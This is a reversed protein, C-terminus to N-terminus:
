DQPPERRLRLWAPRLRDRLGETMRLGMGRTQSRMEREAFGRASARSRRRVAIWCAGRWAATLMGWRLRRWWAGIM